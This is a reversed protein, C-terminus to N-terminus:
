EEFVNLDKKMEFREICKGIILFFEKEPRLLHPKICEM